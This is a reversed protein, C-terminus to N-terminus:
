RTVIRAKMSSSASRAIASMVAGYFRGARELYDTGLSVHTIISPNDDAMKSERPGQIEAGAM